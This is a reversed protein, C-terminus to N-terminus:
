SLVEQVWSWVDRLETAADSEPDAEVATLGFEWAKKHLVRDRIVHPCLNVGPVGEFLSLARSADASPHIRNVVLLTPRQALRCVGLTNRLADRDQKADSTLVLLGDCAQLGELLGGVTVGPCDVVGQGLEELEEGLSVIQVPRVVMDRGPYNQKQRTKWWFAATQQPDADLVPLQALQAWSVAMTSKGVGGKSNYVALKM